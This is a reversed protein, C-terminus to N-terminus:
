NDIFNPKPNQRLDYKTSRPNTPTPTPQAVGTNADHEMYYGTDTGHCFQDAEPFTEPSSEPITGPITNTEDAAM